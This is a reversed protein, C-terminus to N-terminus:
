AAEVDITDYGTAGDPAPPAVDATQVQGDGDTARVALRHHGPALRVTAAWQYWTNRSIGAGLRAPQWAGDDARVDVRQIGRHQAWAVGGMVVKGAIHRTLLTHDPAVAERGLLDEIEVEKLDAVSVDGRALDLVSPLTQVHLKVAQKEQLCLIVRVETIM